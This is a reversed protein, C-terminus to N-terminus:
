QSARLPGFFPCVHLRLRAEIDDISVKRNIRYDRLVDDALEAIRVQVTAPDVFTGTAVEALRRSLVRIAKRKDSTGTSERYPRGNRYYKIWWISSGKQLYIGGTGRPRSM